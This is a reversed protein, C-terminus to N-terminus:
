PSSDSKLGAAPSPLVVGRPWRLPAFTLPPLSARLWLESGGGVSGLPDIDSLGPAGGIRFSRTRVHPASVGRCPPLFRLGPHPGADLPHSSNHCDINHINSRTLSTFFPKASPIIGLILDLPPHTNLLCFPLSSPYLSLSSFQLPATTFHLM